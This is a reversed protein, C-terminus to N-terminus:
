SPAPVPSALLNTVRMLTYIGVTLTTVFEIKRKGYVKTKRL